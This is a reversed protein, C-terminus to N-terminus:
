LGILKHAYADTKANSKLGNAKLLDYWERVWHATESSPHNKLVWEYAAKFDDNLKGEYAIAPTNNEGILLDIVYRHSLDRLVPASIFTPYQLLFDDWFVAREALQQPTIMLGADESWGEAVEKKRQVLHKKMAETGVPSVTADILGANSALMFMGEPFELHLGCAKWAEIEGDVKTKKRPKGEEDMLNEFEAFDPRAFVDNNLQEVTQSIFTELEPV